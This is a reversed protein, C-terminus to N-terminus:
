DDVVSPEDQIQYVVERKGDQERAEGGQERRSESSQPPLCGHKLAMGLGFLDKLGSFFNAAPSFISWTWKLIFAWRLMWRQCSFPNCKLWSFWPLKAQARYCRGTQTKAYFRSPLLDNGVWLNSWCQSAQLWIDKPPCKSVQKSIQYCIKSGVSANGDLDELELKAKQWGFPTQNLRCVHVTWKSFPFCVVTFFFIFKLIAPNFGVRCPLRTFPTQQRCHGFGSREPLDWVPGSSLVSLLFHMTSLWNPSSLAAHHPSPRM